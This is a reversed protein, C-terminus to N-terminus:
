NNSTAEVVTDDVLNNNTNQALEKQKNLAANKKAELLRQRAADARAKSTNTKATDASSTVPTNLKTKPTTNSNNLPKKAVKKAVTPQELIWNNEKLKKLLDFMNKIDDIQLCVM